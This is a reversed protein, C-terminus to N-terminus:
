KENVPAPVANELDSRAPNLSRFREARVVAMVAGAVAVAPILWPMLGPLGGTTGSLLPWNRLALVVIACIGVFAAAPAILTQWLTGDGGSRRGYVIIAFTASAQLVFIGLTGLGTLWAFLQLFPDAGAVAFGIVGLATVVSVALSAASPSRFRDHTTGLVAPLGGARGLSMVYRSLTNHLALIAAFYSTLVLVTLLDTSWKGLFVPMIELVFGGPNAAAEDVVKDSGYANGFSWMTLAYFM